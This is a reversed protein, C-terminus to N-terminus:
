KYYFGAGVSWLSDAKIAAFPIAFLESSFRFLEDVTDNIRATFRSCVTEFLAAVKEDERSRWTDFAERTERVVEEMAKNLKRAPLTLHETFYIGIDEVAQRTLDSKFAALDPEVLNQLLRKAEGGLLLGYEERALIVEQKKKEFASIKEKM